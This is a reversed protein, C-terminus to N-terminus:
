HSLGSIRDAYQQLADITQDGAAAVLEGLLESMKHIEGDPTLGFIDTVITAVSRGM